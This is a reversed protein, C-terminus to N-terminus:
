GAAGEPLAPVPVPSQSLLLVARGADGAELARGARMAAYFARAHIDTQFLAPSSVASAFGTDPTQWGPGYTEALYGDPDDPVPWIRGGYDASAIRFARYRWQIDGALNSFGCTLHPGGRDYLFIDASVGKCTLAIYRDAPRAIRSILIRGHRRLLGAIDPGAGPASLVGIDIDRDHCLPAGARRLGLLTGAAVFARAGAATLLSLLETLVGAAHGADFDPPRRRPAAVALLLCAERFAAEFQGQHYLARARLRDPLCAGSVPGTLRALLACAEAPRRAAILAAAAARRAGPSAHPGCRAVLTDAAAQVARGREAECLTIDAISAWAKPALVEHRTLARFAEVAEQRAGLAFLALARGYAAGAHGPVNRRLTEFQVLAGAADGRKLCAAGLAYRAPTHAPDALLIETLGTCAAELDGSRIQRVSADLADRIAADRIDPTQAM